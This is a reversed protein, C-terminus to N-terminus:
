NERKRVSNEILNGTKLKCGFFHKEKRKQKYRSKQKREAMEDSNPSTKLSKSCMRHLHIGPHLECHKNRIYADGLTMHTHKSGSEEGKKSCM